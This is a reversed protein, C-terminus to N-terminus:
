IWQPSLQSKEGMAEMIQRVIALGLGSGGFNRTTSIDEQEFANFIYDIREPKIGVGSDMVHIEVGVVVESEVHPCITVKVWGEHTFKLANSVLNLMVQKLKAPDGYFHLGEVESTDVELVIGKEDAVSSYTQLIVLKIEDLSLIVRELELKGSEYKSYDLIENIITLLHQGSDIIMKVMEKDDNELKHHLVQAIGLVGNMPTRIEHSMTALFATKAESAYEAQQLAVRLSEEMKREESIDREIAIFGAVEGQKNKVPSINIDIWYERGSKSYNYLQERATRGQKVNERIRAITEKDTKPGQLFSGPTKGLVEDFEYETMETFPQNVWTIKGEVNTIVVIDHAYKAVTALLRSEQTKEELQKRSELLMQHPRVIVYQGIIFVAVLSVLLGILLAILMSVLLKNRADDILSRDVIYRLGLGYQPFQATYIIKTDTLTQAQDEASQYPFFQFTSLDNRRYLSFLDNEDIEFAAVLVGEVSGAYVIPLYVNVQKINEYEVVEYMPAKPSEFASEIYRTNAPVVGRRDVHIVPDMFVDLVQLQNVFELMNLETLQDIATQRSVENGLAAGVFM